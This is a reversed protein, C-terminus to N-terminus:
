VCVGDDDGDSGVSNGMIAAQEKDHERKEERGEGDDLTSKTADQGECYAESGQGSGRANSPM